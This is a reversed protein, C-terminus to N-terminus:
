FFFYFLLFVFWCFMKLHTKVLRNGSLPSSASSCKTDRNETGVATLASSLTPPFSGPASAKAVVSSCNQRQATM